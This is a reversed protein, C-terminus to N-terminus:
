LGPQKPNDNTNNGMNVRYTREYMHYRNLDNYFKAHHGIYLTSVGEPLTSRLHM